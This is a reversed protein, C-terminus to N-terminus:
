QIDSLVHDSMLVDTAALVVNMLFLTYKQAPMLQSQIVGSMVHVAVSEFTSYM